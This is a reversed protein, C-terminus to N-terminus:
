GTQVKGVNVGVDEASDRLPDCSEEARRSEEDDLSDDDDDPDSQVDRCCGDAPIGVREDQEIQGEGSLGGVSGREDQEGLVALGVAVADLDGFVAVDVSALAGGGVVERDFESANALGLVVGGSAVVDVADQGSFEGFEAVVEDCFDARRGIWGSGRVVNGVGNSSSQGPATPRGGTVNFLAM